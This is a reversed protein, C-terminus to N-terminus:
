RQAPAPLCTSPPGVRRLRGGNVTEGFRSQGRLVVMAGPQVGLRQLHPALDAYVEVSWGENADVIIRAKSSFGNEPTSTRM